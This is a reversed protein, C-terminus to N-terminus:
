VLKVKRSLSLTVFNLGNNAQGAVAGPPFVGHMQIDHSLTDVQVATTTGAFLMPGVDWGYSNVFFIGRKGARAFLDLAGGVIRGTESNSVLIGTDMAREFDCTDISAGSADDLEMEGRVVPDAPDFTMASWNGEVACRAVAFCGCNEFRAGAKGNNAFTCGTVRLMEAVNKAFLGYGGNNVCRCNVLSAECVIRDAWSSGLGLYVGEETFGTLELGELHVDYLVEGPAPAAVVGRRAPTSPVSISTLRMQDLRVHSSAVVVADQGPPGYIVTGYGEGALTIPKDLVLPQDLFYTGAPVVLVGGDSGVAAVAAPLNAYQKANLM